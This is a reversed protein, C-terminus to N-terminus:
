GEYKNTEIIRTRGLSLLLYISNEPGKPHILMGSALSYRKM